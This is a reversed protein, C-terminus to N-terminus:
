LVAAYKVAYKMCFCWTHLRWHAHFLDSTAIPLYIAAKADVQGCGGRGSREGSCHSCSWGTLDDFSSHFLCEISSISCNIWNISLISWFGAVLPIKCANWSMPGSKSWWRYTVSIIKYNIEMMQWSWSVRGLHIMCYTMGGVPKNSVQIQVGQLLQTTWRRTWRNLNNLWNPSNQLVSITM